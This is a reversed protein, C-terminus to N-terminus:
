RKELILCLDAEIFRDLEVFNNALYSFSLAAIALGVTLFFTRMTEEGSGGPGPLIDIALEVKGRGRNDVGGANCVPALNSQKETLEETLLQSILKKTLEGPYDQM